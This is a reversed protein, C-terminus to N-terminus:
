GLDFSITQKAWVEVAQQKYTAPQFLWARVANLAADEFIGVPNAELVKVNKVNGDKGILISLTVYGEINSARARPPYDIFGRKLPVPREDVSEETMVSNAMDSLDGLLSDSLNALASAEFDPVDVQIGSLNTGLSPLPAITRSKPKSRKKKPPEAKEVEPKKKEKTKEINFSIAAPGSNDQPAHVFKNMIVVMGFVFPSGVLMAFLAIFRVRFKSIEM